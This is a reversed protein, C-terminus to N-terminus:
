HLPLNAYSASRFELGFTTFFLFGFCFRFSVVLTHHLHKHATDLTVFSADDYHCLARILHYINVPHGHQFTIWFHPGTLGVVAIRRMCLSAM